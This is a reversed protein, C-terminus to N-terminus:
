RAGSVHSQPNLAYRRKGHVARKNAQITKDVRNGCTLCGLMYYVHFFDQLSSLLMLGHCRPCHPTM